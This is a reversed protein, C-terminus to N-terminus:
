PERGACCPRVCHITCEDQNGADFAEGRLLDIMARCERAKELARSARHAYRREEREWQAIPSEPAPPPLTSRLHEEYQSPSQRSM